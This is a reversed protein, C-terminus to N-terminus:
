IGKKLKPVLAQFRICQLDFGNSGEGEAGKNQIKHYMKVIGKWKKLFEETNKM